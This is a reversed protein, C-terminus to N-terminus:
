LTLAANSSSLCFSLHQVFACYHGKAKDVLAVSRASLGGIALDAHLEYLRTQMRCSM